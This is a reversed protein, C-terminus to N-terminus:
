VLPVFSVALRQANLMAGHAGILLKLGTDFADVM